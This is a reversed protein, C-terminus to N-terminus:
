GKLKEIRAKVAELLATQGEAKGALARMVDEDITGETVLHHVIVAETQGQRDLRANAQLYFELSWTLSFWIIINGGAQLNLGHGASQPHVLLVQIKKNNWDEIDKSKKLIRPKLKKLHEQLRILDHEYYYFVMVPKGNASEILDDLALLKAKHIEQVLKNEDYVAGNAMQLLKNSLVAATNAVVDGEAFELLKNREMVKYNRKEADSMKVTVTNNIREPLALWDKASISVCIDSIKNHIATDAGDKPEYGFESKVKKGKRYIMKGRDFYRERYSTVTRGLREGFDLLFIQSWLDVLGNPAPTGTLGVIREVHPRVRRLMGFRVTSHDKFSSLEDIVVMDFPWVKRWLWIKPQIEKGDAGVKPKGKSVFEGYQECLWLVNERNIIYIDAPTQLANLRENASGLVKSVRLHKIHDWKAVESGWTDEAVRLPAIVLTKAVHFYDYQLESIATLTCVTKGMGMDLFLGTAPLNIIQKIAHDQYVHPKFEM